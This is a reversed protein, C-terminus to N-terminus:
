AGAPPTPPTGSKKAKLRELVSSSKSDGKVIGASRLRDKLETSSEAKQMDMAAKMQDSKVQQKKKIRELSDTASRLSSNTGSFRAAVAENAKQVNETTKVLNIEREMSKISRETERITQKLTRVNHNYSNLVETQSELENELDAIKEAIETALAEDGKDLAQMAYGEYEAIQGRLKKVSREAGIQEAVVRTLNEKAKDMAEKSDRMEQDLIRLAQTDIIAEGMENSAGRLATFLKSFVGM